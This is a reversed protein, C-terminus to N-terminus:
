SQTNTVEIGIANAVRDYQNIDCYGAWHSCKSCSGESAETSNTASTNYTPDYLSCNQAVTHLNSLQHM